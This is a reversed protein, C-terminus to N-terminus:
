DGFVTSFFRDRRSLHISRVFTSFAWVALHNNKRKARSERRGGRRRGFLQGVESRVRGRCSRRCESSCAMADSRAGFRESVAAPAPPDPPLSLDLANTREPSTGSDPVRARPPRRSSTTSSEGAVFKNWRPRNTSVPRSFFAEPRDDPSADSLLPPPPLPTPPFLGCDGDGSCRAGGSRLRERDRLSSRPVACVRGFTLARQFSAACKPMESGIGIATEPPAV